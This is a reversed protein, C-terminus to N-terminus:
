REARASIYKIIQDRNQGEVVQAYAESLIAIRKRSNVIWVGLEKNEKMLRAIEDAQKLYTMPTFAVYVQDCFKTYLKAQGFAKIIEGRAKSKKLEFGYVTSGLLGKKQVAVDIRPSRGAERPIPVETSIRFKDGRFEEKVAKEMQRENRPEELLKALGFKASGSELANLLHEVSFYEENLLMHVILGKSERANMKKAKIKIAAGLLGRLDSERQELLQNELDVGLKKLIEEAGM